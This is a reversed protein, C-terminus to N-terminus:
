PKSGSKAPSAAPAPAAPPQAPPRIVTGDANVPVDVPAGGPLRVIGDEGRKPAYKVGTHDSNETNGGMTGTSSSEDRANGHERDGPGMPNKQPESGASPPAADSGDAAFALTPHVFQLALTSVAVTLIAQHIRMSEKEETTECRRGDVISGHM